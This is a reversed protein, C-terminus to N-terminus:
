KCRGLNKEYNLFDENDQSFCEEALMVNLEAMEQYGKILRERLEMKKHQGLYQKMAERIIVSRNTKEVSALNDVENLLSEPLSILIKKIEPM